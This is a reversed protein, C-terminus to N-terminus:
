VNKFVKRVIKEVVYLYLKMFLIEGIKRRLIKYSNINKCDVNICMIKYINIKWDVEGM